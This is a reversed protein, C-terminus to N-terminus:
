RCVSDHRVAIRTPPVEKSTKKPVLETLLIYKSRLVEQSLHLSCGVLEVYLLIYIRLGKATFGKDVLRAIVWQKSYTTRCQGFAAPGADM